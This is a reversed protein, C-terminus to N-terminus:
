ENIKEPFKVLAKIAGADKATEDAAKGTAFFTKVRTGEFWTVRTNFSSIVSLIDNGNNNKQDCYVNNGMWDENEKDVHQCPILTMISRKYGFHINGPTESEPELEARLGFHAKEVFFLRDHACASLMLGISTIM